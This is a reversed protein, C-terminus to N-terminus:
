HRLIPVNLHRGRIKELMPAVVVIRDRLAVVDDGLYAEADCDRIYFDLQDLTEMGTAIFDEQVHVTVNPRHLKHRLADRYSRFEESVTSLFLRVQHVHPM